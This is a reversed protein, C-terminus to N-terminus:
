SCKLFFHAVRLNCGVTVINAKITISLISQIGLARENGYVLKEFLIFICLASLNRISQMKHYVDEATLLVSPFDIRFSFGYGTVSVNM